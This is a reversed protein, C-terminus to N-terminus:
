AADIISEISIPAFSNVTICKEIESRSINMGVCKIFSANYM